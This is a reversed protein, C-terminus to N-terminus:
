VCQHPSELTEDKLLLQQSYKTIHGHSKALYFFHSQCPSMAVETLKWKRKGTLKLNLFM